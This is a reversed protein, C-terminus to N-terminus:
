ITSVTVTYTVWKNVSLGDKRHTPPTVRTHNNIHLLATWTLTFHALTLTLQHREFIKPLTIFHNSVHILNTLGFCIAQAGGGEGRKWIIFTNLTM